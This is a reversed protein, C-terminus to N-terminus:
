HQLSGNLGGSKDPTPETYRARSEWNLRSTSKAEVFVPLKHGTRGKARYLAQDAAGMLAEVTEGDQAYVAVGVSVSTPPLEGDRVVRDCIRHAV